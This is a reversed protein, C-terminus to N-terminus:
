EDDDLSAIEDIAENLYRRGRDSIEPDKAIRRLEPIAQKAAPGVKKLLFIAYFRARRSRNRKLLDVLLPVAEPPAANISQLAERIFDSDERNEFRAILAPVASTANEGMKGLLKASQKRVSWVEDSLSDTLISVLQEQDSLTTSLSTIALSRLEADDNSALETLATNAKAAAPGIKGITEVVQNRVGVEDSAMMEILSDIGKESITQLKGLAALTARRVEDNRDSLLSEMSAVVKDSPDSANGLATVAMRRLESNEENLLESLAEAQEPPVSEIRGFTKASQLRVLLDDHRIGAVLHETLVEPDVGIQFLADLAAAQLQPNESKLAAQLKAEAAIASSGLQGLGTACAIRVNDSDSDLLSVLARVTDESATQRVGILKAAAAQVSEDPSSLSAVLKPTAADDMFQIAPRLAEFEIRNKAIATVMAEITSPGIKGLALALAEDISADRGMADIIKETASGAPPGIQGLLFAITAIGKQQSDLQEILQPVTAHRSKRKRVIASVAAERVALESDELPKLLRNVANVSDESLQGFANIAAVRVQPSPDDFKAIIKELQSEADTIQSMAVLARSRVTPSVSNTAQILAPMSLSGIKWLSEVAHDAISEEEDLCQILTPIAPEATPGMWGIAQILGIRTKSSSTRQLEAHVKPFADIGIRGLAYAARYQPQDGDNLCDILNDIAQAADSAFLALSVMSNGRIQYDRSKLSKNLASIVSEDAIGLEGLERAADRQDEMGGELLQEVLSEVRAVDDGSEDCFLASCCGLLVIFATLFRTM